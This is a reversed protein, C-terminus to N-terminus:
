KIYIKNEKKDLYYNGGKPGSYVTEGKPGKVSHNVPDGTKTRGDRPKKEKGSENKKVETKQSAKTETKALKTQAKTETKVVKTEAKAVTKTTQANVNMAIITAIFLLAITKIARMKTQKQRLIYHM